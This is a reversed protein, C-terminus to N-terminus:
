PTQQSSTPAEATSDVNADASKSAKHYQDRFHQSLQRALVIEEMPNPSKLIQRMRFAEQYSVASLDTFERAAQSPFDTAILHDWAATLEDHPDVFATRVIFGIVRFLPGTWEPHYTFDAAEKYPFVTPDSRYRTYSASYLEKRVPLRRLAYRVPGGPSGVEFNWLKQGDISLVYALFAEAVDRNPAGRLIGIPDVGVSSGGVPTFYQLRSPTNGLKVAESQFRGYFDICMGIAAEGQAVDVPVKAASDTFYRANAAAKQIIEMGAQWGTSLAQEKPLGAALQEQMQQQIIMEFAKNASGRKTPDALAVQRRLLPSTLDQWGSPLSQFGIERLSDTNYCVGFSSVVAGIWRGQTDYFPEGSVVQPLSDPTFWEPHTKLITSPILFGKRAQQTFEYAGGGFFIDIGSSVDSDLFARRASEAPTDASPDAPLQLTRSAFAGAVKLDWTNGTSTWYNQFANFFEGELYRAIESTGGPTRWDILVTRGTQQKWAKAFARGFEYRIAENHPTIIVLTDDATSLLQEKPKLLFPIAVVLAIAALIAVAKM